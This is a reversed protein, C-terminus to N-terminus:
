SPITVTHTTDKDAQCFTAPFDNAHHCSPHPLNPWVTIVKEVTPKLKSHITM